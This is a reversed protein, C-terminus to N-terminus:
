SKAEEETNNYNQQLYKEQMSNLKRIEKKYSFYIIMWIVFYTSIQIGAMILLDIISESWGLFLSIPIYCLVMIMCHGLCSVSLPLREIEHITIGGFCIAGYLGSLLSQILFAADEGGIKQILAESMLQDTSDSIYGTFFAIFNGIVMGILFGIGARKITKKLM